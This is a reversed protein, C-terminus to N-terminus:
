GDGRRLLAARAAGVVYLSGTVVVQDEPVARALARAVADEVSDATEIRDAAVGLDRAAGALVDPDHARPSPPRCLVVRTADLIGLAELMEHPDKERLLGVVVIRPADVFEEALAARLAAAGVLNHAGDLLVLPAHGVVELRGPSRVSRFAGEFVERSPASGLFAEAAALAAAANDAQHAGHLPLFVDSYEATPTVLDLVRGGHAIRASEVDFDVGRIIVREAGRDLFVPTLEPDAEGLVLTSGPKVIGAKETAISERTPGLYDVHDISVNTVVAVDGDVVNTADWTGGVGVEVVALDVAIDAFWSLAAGTLIEFYSLRDDLHDEARAIVSLVEALADDGIPEDGWAIRENVRELHPSTYSAVSLGSATLLASTMRAVSTKGNTGTLHVSPYSLQPSGLLEVLARIRDLTPTTARRDRDVPVGVSELNIHEDLWALASANTV